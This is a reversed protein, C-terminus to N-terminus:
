MERILALLEDASVKGALETGALLGDALDRKKAHLDVIKEEITDRMVLRYVTVPRTQGIRYARDSAQDEVAPNWWPDMHIVYDAATLNLGQGGARLSILFLDGDGAQFADIEAKRKRAPTSGDLYRYTIGKRDLEARLIALHSVFQSFVLAKHRSAVLERVTELFAELKSSRIDTQPALLLPNCCAQRLKTIEALIRMHGPGGDSLAEIARQRVAEYFAKEEPAMEIRLTVETKPPLEHLVASKTRRLIFPQILRRLRSRAAHDSHQHIPHAFKAHFDKLKGLLGPNLFEFLSYLEGLHNEIPTGTLIMRSSGSLKMAAKWRQTERNKIAQAEDLVLTEWRTEALLDGENLLLGYSCVVLDFPGARELMARRDGPGFRVPRLTPAFRRTEDIWNSCVSTPAVVLTPGSATGTLILALAQMTKGLGMDDALCAGAGWATLRAAWQFGDVQYSRLEAQLTSPIGPELARADRIRALQQKWGKDSRVSGLGKVVDEMLHARGTNMRLSRGSRDLVGGLVELRRRFDETLALFQNGSIPVFRGSAAEVAKLLDRLSLVLGSDVELKGGFTFWDIGTRIRLSLASASARHQVQLREGKPWVAKVSKGLARLEDLLELCSEIGEIVWQAGDWNAAGLSPCKSVAEALLKKELALDRKRSKGRGGVYAVVTPSGSGVPLFPGENEFPRVVPVLRLGDGLSTIQLVPTADAVGGAGAPLIGPVDSEVTILKSLAEIAPGLSSSERAPLRLGDRGVVEYIERHTDEFITVAIRTNSELEVVTDGAEPPPPVLKVVLDTGKGSIQVQPLARVVEVPTTRSDMRFVNPHGALAGIAASFDYGFYKSRKLWRELIADCVQWDRDTLYRLGRGEVLRDIAVKRGKSWKGTKGRTQELAGLDPGDETVDVLWVLRKVPKRSGKKGSSRAKPRIKQLTAVAVRWSPLSVLSDVLPTHWSSIRESPKPLRDSSDLGMRRAIESYEASLWDFGAKSARNSSLSIDGPYLSKRERDCWFQALAGLLGGVPRESLMAIRTFKRSGAQAAESKGQAQDILGRFAAGLSGSTAEPFARNVFRAAEDIRDVDATGILSLVYFPAFWNDNQIPAVGLTRRFRKIAQGRNGTICDIWGRYLDAQGWRDLELMESAGALEGRLLIWRLAKEWLDQSADPRRAARLALDVGDDRGVMSWFRYEFIGELGVNRIEPIRSMIWEPDLSTRFLESLQSVSFPRGGSPLPPLDRIRCFLDRDNSHVALRLRRAWAADNKDKWYGQSSPDQLPDFDRLVQWHGEFRGRKVARRTAVEALDRELHVETRAARLLRASRLNRIVQRLGTQTYRRGTPAVMGAGMCLQVANATKLSTYAVSLLEVVVREEPKLSEFSKM